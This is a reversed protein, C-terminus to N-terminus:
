GEGLGVPKAGIHSAFEIFMAIIPLFLLLMLLARLIASRWGQSYNVCLSAVFYVLWYIMLVVQLLMVALYRDAITEISIMAAYVIFTASFLYVTFVLHALYLTKRYIIKLLLAFLPLLVFMARSYLDSSFEFSADTATNEPLIMPLVFFFVLSVVLYMRVPSTYSARRGSNYELSLFGPRTLLLRLSTVMRGDFDFLERLAEGAMALWPRAM